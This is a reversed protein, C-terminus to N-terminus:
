HRIVAGREFDTGSRRKDKVVPLLQAGTSIKISSRREPVAELSISREPVAKSPLTPNSFSARFGYIASKRGTAGYLLTPSSPLQHHIIEDCSLHAGLWIAGGYM